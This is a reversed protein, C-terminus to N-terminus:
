VLGNQDAYSHDNNKNDSNKHDNYKHDKKDSKLNRSEKPLFTATYDKYKLSNNNNRLNYNPFWHDNLDTSEFRDLCEFNKVLGSRRTWVTRSDM